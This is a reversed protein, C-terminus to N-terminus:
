DAKKCYQFIANGVKIIDGNKLPQESVNRFNVFTQGLPDNDVLSYGTYYKLLKAHTRNVNQYSTLNIDDDIQSGMFHIERDLEFEIGEYKGNLSRIWEKRKLRSMATLAIALFTTFSVICAGRALFANQVQSFLAFSVIGSAGGAMVGSLMGRVICLNSRDRIGTSMGIFVATIFWRSALLFELYLDNRSIVEPLHQQLYDILYFSALGSCAGFSTGIAIGRRAKPRNYVLYGELGGLLAGAVSGLLIGALASRGGRPVLGDEILIFLFEQCAWVIFGTAIGFALHPLLRKKMYTFITYSVAM